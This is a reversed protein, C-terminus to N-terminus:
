REPALGLQQMMGARDAVDWRQMIKGDRFEFRITLAGSSSFASDRSTHIQSM